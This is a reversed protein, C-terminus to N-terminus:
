DADELESAVPLDIDLRAAMHLAAKKMEERLGLDVFRISKVEGRVNGIKPLQCLYFQRRTFILLCGAISLGNVECDFVAVLRDGNPWPQAERLSVGTIKIDHM